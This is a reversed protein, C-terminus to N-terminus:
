SFSMQQIEHHEGTDQYLNRSLHMSRKPLEAARLYWRKSSVM